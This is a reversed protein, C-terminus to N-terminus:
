DGGRRMAWWAGVLAGAAATVIVEAGFDGPQDDILTASPTADIAVLGLWGVAVAALGLAVATAVSASALPAGRAQRATSPAAGAVLLPHFHFALGTVETAIVWVVALVLAVAAGAVIAQNPSAVQETTAV